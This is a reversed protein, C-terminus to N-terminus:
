IYKQEVLFEKVAEKWSRLQPYNQLEFMYNRLGSFCPRAAPLQLEKLSVKKILTEPAQMLERIYAAIEWRSAFGANSLHYIGYSNTQILYVIATVLDNVYCPSSVMEKTVNVTTGALFAEASQTVYNNRYAGFLWSTRVIFYKHLLHQVFEEAKLKSEGYVNIPNTKEFETYGSPLDNNGSFVYDTSIHVMVSDFRQCALAVNRTGLTNVRYADDPNKECADVNTFAACHMVIDPNVKTIIEYIAQQDTIDTNYVKCGPISSERTIGIIEHENSLRESLAKGLLGSIGTIAIKM